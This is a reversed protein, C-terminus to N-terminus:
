GKATNRHKIKSIRSTLIIPYFLYALSTFRPDFGRLIIALATLQILLFLALISYNAGAKILNTSLNRANMLVYTSLHLAGFSYITQLSYEGAGLPRPIPGLFSTVTSALFAIWIPAQSLSPHGAHYTFVPGLARSIMVDFTTWGATLFVIILIVQIPFSRIQIYGKRLSRLSYRASFVIYAMMAIAPIIPRLLLLLVGCFIIILVKSKYFSRVGVALLLIILAEKFLTVEMYFFLPNLPLTLYFAQGWKDLQDRFTTYLVLGSIGVLITNTLYVLAPADDIHYIAFVYAPALWDEYDISQVKLTSDFSAGGNVAELAIQHYLLADEARPYLTSGSLFYFQACFLIVFICSTLTVSMLHIPQKVLVFSFSYTVVLLLSSLFFWLNESAGTVLQIALVAAYVALSLALTLSPSSQKM